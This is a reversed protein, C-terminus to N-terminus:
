LQWQVHPRNSLYDSSITVVVVMNAMGIAGNSFTMGKQLPPDCFLFSVPFPVVPYHLSYKQQNIILPPALTARRAM